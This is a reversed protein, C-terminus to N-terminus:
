MTGKLYVRGRRLESGDHLSRGQRASLYDKLSSQTNTWRADLNISGGIRATFRGQPTKFFLGDDWYDGFVYKSEGMGLGIESESTKVRALEKKMSSLEAELRDIRRTLDETTEARAEGSFFPGFLIMILATFVIAAPKM